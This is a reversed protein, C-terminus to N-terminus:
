ARDAVGAPLPTLAIGALLRWQLRVQQYLAALALVGELM